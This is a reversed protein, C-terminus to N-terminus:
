LLRTSQLYFQIGLGFLCALLIIVVVLAHSKLASRVSNRMSVPGLRWGFYCCLLLVLILLFHKV